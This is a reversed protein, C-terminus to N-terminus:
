GIRTDRSSPGRCRKSPRSPPIRRKRSSSTSIRRSLTTPDRRSTLIAGVTQGTGVDVDVAAVLLTSSPSSSLGLLFAFACRRAAQRRGQDRACVADRVAGEDHHAADPRHTGQRDLAATSGFQAPDNGTAFQAWRILAETATSSSPRAHSVSQHLRTEPVGDYHADARGCLAAGAEWEGVASGSGQSGEGVDRRARFRNRSWNKKATPSARILVTGLPRFASAVKHSSGPAPALDALTAATAYTRASSVLSPLSKFLSRTCYLSM